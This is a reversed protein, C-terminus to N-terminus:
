RCAVTSLENANRNKEDESRSVLHIFSIKTPMGLVYKSTNFLKAILSQGEVSIAM